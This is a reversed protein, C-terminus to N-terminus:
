IKRLTLCNLVVSVSSFAMAAGAIVPSLMGLAAFPIAAANYVFAWFLNQKIKRMTKVSLRIAQPVLLLDGHLLTIDSSEVAVDAGTSMVLGVDAAVLAPADNIGDGVMAVVHGSLRLKEVEAVKNHPLVQAIVNSIGVQDAIAKATRQNDGTLMYVDLKMGLLTEVARRSTPKVTDAVAVLGASEGDVLVLVATKGEEELVGLRQRAQTTDAGLEGMLKETGVFVTVGDVKARVGMGPLATFEEPEPLPESCNTKGYSYIVQGVPHESMKEAAACLALM